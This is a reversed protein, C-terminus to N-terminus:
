SAPPGTKKIKRRARACNNPNLERLMVLPPTASVPDGQKLAIMRATTNAHGGTMIGEPDAVIAGDYLL